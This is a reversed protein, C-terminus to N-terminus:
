KVHNLPEGWILSHFPLVGEWFHYNSWYVAIIWFRHLVPHLNPLLLTILFIGTLLYTLLSKAETGRSDFLSPSHTISYATKTQPSAWCHLAGCFHFKACSYGLPHPHHQFTSYMCLVRVTCLFCAIGCEVIFFVLYVSVPFTWYVFMHSVACLLRM